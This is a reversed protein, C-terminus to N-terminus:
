QDSQKAARRQERLARLDIEAEPVEPRTQYPLHELTVKVPSHFIKNILASIYKSKTYVYNSIRNVFKPKNVVRERFKFHKKDTIFYPGMQHKAFNRPSM